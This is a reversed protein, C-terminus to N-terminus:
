LGPRVLDWLHDPEGEPTRLPRSSATGGQAQRVAQARAKQEQENAQRAAELLFDKNFAVFQGGLIEPTLQDAKLDLNLIHGVFDERVKPEKLLEYYGGQAQLADLANTIRAGVNQQVAQAQAQGLVSLLWDVKARAKANLDNEYMQSAVTEPYLEAFDPNIFGPKAHVTGTWLLQGTGPDQSPSKASASGAAFALALGVIAAGCIGYALRHM